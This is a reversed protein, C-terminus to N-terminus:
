LEIRDALILPVDAALHTEVVVGHHQVESRVLALVDRIM